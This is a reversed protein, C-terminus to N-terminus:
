KPAIGLANEAVHVFDLLSQEFEAHGDRRPVVLDGGALVFEGWTRSRWRRVSWWIIMM